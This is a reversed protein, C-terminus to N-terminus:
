EEMVLPRGDELTAPAPAVVSEGQEIGSLIEVQDGFRKGTRVLRLRARNDESVFVIEMQGRRLVADNPVRVNVGAAVPVSLRGFQGARLGGVEPLDLKVPVTRSLPNAAPAIEALTAAVPGNIGDIAVELRDGIRVSAALAEPLDAEFRLGGASELELLPKGPAALDGIDALQRAIVGDFPALVRTYGMMARAEDVAAAAIQHRTEVADYESQTVAKQELLKRYRDLERRANRLSAEAQELRASIEGADIEALLEGAKVAKGITTQLARIRGSVKASVLARTRARVTGVIREVAQNTALTAVALRVKAPPLEPREVPPASERHCGALLLALASVILAPLAKM